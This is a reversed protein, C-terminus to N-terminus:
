GIALREGDGRAAGFEDAEPIHGRAFHNPLERVRVFAAATGQRDRERGIALYEREGVEADDPEVVRRRSGLESLKTIPLGSRDVRDCEGGVPLKEGCDTAPLDTEPIHRGALFNADPVEM